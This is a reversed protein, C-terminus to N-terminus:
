NQMSRSSQLILKESFSKSFECGCYNQRYINNEKCFKISFNYGNNKRFIFPELNFEEGIKLIMNIDKRSSSTLTTAIKQINNDKAFQSAKMLRYKICLECHKGNERFRENAKSVFELWKKHEILYEEKSYRFTIYKIQFFNMVKEYNDLRKIYEEYPYINPNYFYGIVEINMEKLNHIAAASCPGCCSHLLLM